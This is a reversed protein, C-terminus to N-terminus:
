RVREIQIKPLAWFLLVLQRIIVMNASALIFYKAM